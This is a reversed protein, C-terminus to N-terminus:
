RRKEKAKPTLGRKAGLPFLGWAALIWFIWIMPTKRRQSECDGRLDSSNVDRRQGAKGGSDSRGPWYGGRGALRQVPLLDFLASGERGQRMGHARRSSQDCVVM